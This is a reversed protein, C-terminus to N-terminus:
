APPPTNSHTNQCEATRRLMEVFESLIMATAGWIKHRGIHFFPVHVRRDRIMWDEECRTEPDLLADVQVEIVQRV